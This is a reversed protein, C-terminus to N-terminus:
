SVSPILNPIVLLVGYVVAGFSLAFFVYAVARNLAERRLASADGAASSPRLADANVLLRIGISFATVVAASGIIAAAAVLFLHNWDITIM